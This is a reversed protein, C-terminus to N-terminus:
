HAVASETLAIFQDGMDIFAHGKGRGRLTFEFIQGYFALAQEVDGVELAVHNIGVLRPKRPQTDAANSMADAAAERKGQHRGHGQGNPCRGGGSNFTACANVRAM